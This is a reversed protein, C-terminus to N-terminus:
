SASALTASVNGSCSFFFFGYYLKCRPVFLLNFAFWNWNVYCVAFVILTEQDCIVCRISLVLGFLIKSCHSHIAIALIIVDDHSCLIPSFSACHVIM